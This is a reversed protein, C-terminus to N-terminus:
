APRVTGPRGRFWGAFAAMPVPPDLPQVLMLTQAADPCSRPLCQRLKTRLEDPADDELLANAWRRGGDLAVFAARGLRFADEADFDPNEILRAFWQGIAMRAARTPDDIDAAAPLRVALSRLLNPDVIGLSRLLDVIPAAPHQDDQLASMADM